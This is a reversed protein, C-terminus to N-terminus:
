RSEAVPITLAQAQERINGVIDSQFLHALKETLLIYLCKDPQPESAKLLQPFSTDRKFDPDPQPEDPMTDNGSIISHPFFSM